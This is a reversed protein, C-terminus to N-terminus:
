TKKSKSRPQQKPLVKIHSLKNKAMIANKGWYSVVIIEHQTLVSNVMDIVCLRPLSQVCGRFPVGTWGLTVGLLKGDTGV